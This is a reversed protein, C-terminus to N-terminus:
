GGSADTNNYGFEMDAFYYLRRDWNNGLYKEEFVENGPEYGAGSRWSREISVPVEHGQNFTDWDIDTEVRRMPVVKSEDRSIFYQGTPLFIEPHIEQLGADHHIDVTAHTSGLNYTGGDVYQGNEYTGKEYDMAEVKIKTVGNRDADILASIWNVPEHVTIIQGWSGHPHMDGTPAGTTIKSRHKPHGIISLTEVERDIAAKMDSGIGGGGDVTGDKIADIQAEVAGLREKVGTLDAGMGDVVQRLKITENEVLEAITNPDPEAVGPDFNELRHELESLKQRVEAFDSELQAGANSYTDDNSM